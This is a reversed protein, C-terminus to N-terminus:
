GRFGSPQVTSWFCRAALKLAELQNTVAFLRDGGPLVNAFDVGEERADADAFNGPADAPIASKLDIISFGGRQPVLGLVFLLDLYDYPPVAPDNIGPMTFFFGDIAEAQAGEEIRAFVLNRPLQFYAAPAPPAMDWAGVQFGPELIKRLGAEDIAFTLKGALWYHFGQLIVAGFQEFATRTSDPPLFERLLEGVGELQLMQERNRVDVDRAKAENRIAPFMEGELKESGFVLDYPHVRESM